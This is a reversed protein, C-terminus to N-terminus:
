MDSEDGSDETDFYEEPVNDLVKEQTEESLQALMSEPIVENLALEYGNEPYSFDPFEKLAKEFAIGWCKDYIRGPVDVFEYSYNHEKVFEEMEAFDKKTLSVEATSDFVLSDGDMVGYAFEYKM